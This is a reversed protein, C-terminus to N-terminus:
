DNRPCGAEVRSRANREERDSLPGPEAAVLCQPQGAGPPGRLVAGVALREQGPKTDPTEQDLGMAKGASRQVGHARKRHAQRVVAPQVVHQRFRSRPGARATIWASRGRRTSMMAPVWIPPWFGATKCLKNWTGNTRRRKMSCPWRMVPSAAKTLNSKTTGTTKHAAIRLSRFNRASAPRVRLGPFNAPM